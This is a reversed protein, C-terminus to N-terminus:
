RGNTVVNTNLEDEIQAKALSHRTLASLQRVIDNWGSLTRKHSIENIDNRASLEVVLFLLPVNMLEIAHLSHQSLYEPSGCRCPQRHLVPPIHHSWANNHTHTSQQLM